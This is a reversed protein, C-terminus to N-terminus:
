WDCLHLRSSHRVWKVDQLFYRILWLDDTRESIVWKWLHPSSSEFRKRGCGPVWVHCSGAWGWRAQCLHGYSYANLRWLGFSFVLRSNSVLEVTIQNEPVERKLLGEKALDSTHRQTPARPWCVELHEHFSNVLSLWTNGNKEGLNLQKGKQIESQRTKLSWGVFARAPLKSLDLEFCLHWATFGYRM